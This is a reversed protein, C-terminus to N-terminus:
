NDDSLIYIIIDIVRIVGFTIQIPKFCWQFFFISQIFIYFRVAMGEDKQDDAAENDHGNTLKESKASKASKSAKVSKASNRPTENTETNKDIDGNSEAVASKQEQSTNCGM